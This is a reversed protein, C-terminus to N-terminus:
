PRWAIPLPEPAVELDSEGLEVFHRIVAYWGQLEEPIRSPPEGDAADKETDPEAELEAETAMETAAEEPPSPATEMVEDLLTKASEILGLQRLAEAKQVREALDDDRLLEVLRRLNQRFPSDDRANRARARKLSRWEAIAQVFTWAAWSATLSVVVAYASRQIWAEVHPWPVLLLAVAGLGLWGVACGVTCGPSERLPDNHRWWLLRRLRREADIGSGIPAALAADLDEASPWGVIPAEEGPAAVGRADADEHWFVERCGPCRLLPPPGLDEVCGDTWCTRSSEDTATATRARAGCGPCAILRLPGEDGEELSSGEIM